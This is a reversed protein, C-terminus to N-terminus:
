GSALAWVCLGLVATGAIVASAVRAATQVTPASLRRRLLALPVGVAALALAEGSLVGFLYAALGSGLDGRAVGAAAFPLGLGFGHVLGLLAAVKRRRRDDVPRVNEMAVYGVTLALLGGVLRERLPCLGAAAPVLAACQALVLAAVIGVARRPELTGLLLCAAFLLHEWRCFRAVGLEWLRGMSELAAAEDRRAAPGHGAPAPPPGASAPAAPAPPQRAPLAIRYEDEEALVIQEPAGAGRVTLLHQHSGTPLGALLTSRLVLVRTSEPVQYHLTVSIFGSLDDTAPPPWFPVDPPPPALEAASRHLVRGAETRFSLATEVYDFIAEKVAEIEAATVHGDRNADLRVGWDLEYEPLLITYDLRHDSFAITGFSHSGSHARATTAGLALLLAFAM